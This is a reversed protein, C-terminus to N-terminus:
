RASRLAMVEATLQDIHKSQATIVDVLRELRESSRSHATVLTTVIIMMQGIQQGQSEIASRLLELDSPATSAAPVVAPFAGTRTMQAM